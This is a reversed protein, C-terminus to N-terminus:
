IAPDGALTRLKAQHHPPLGDGEVFWLQIPHQKNTHPSVEVCETVPLLTNQTATDTAHSYFLFVPPLVPNGRCLSISSRKERKNVRKHSM